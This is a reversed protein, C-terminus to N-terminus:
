YGFQEERRELFAYYQDTYPPNALGIIKAKKGAASGVGRAFWYLAPNMVSGNANIIASKEAM